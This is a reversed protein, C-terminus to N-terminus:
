RIAACLLIEYGWIDSKEMFFRCEATLPGFTTILLRVPLITDFRVEIKQFLSATAVEQKSRSDYWTNMQESYVTVRCVGLRAMVLQVAVM